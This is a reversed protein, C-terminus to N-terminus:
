ADSDGEHEDDSDTVSGGKRSRRKRAQDELATEVAQRMAQLPGMWWTVSWGKAGTLKSYVTFTGVKWSLWLLVAGAGVLFVVEFFYLLDFFTFGFLIMGGCIGLTGLFLSRNLHVSELTSLQISRTRAKVFESTVELFGDKFYVKAVM